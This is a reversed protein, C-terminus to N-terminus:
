ETIRGKGFPIFERVAEVSAGLVMERLEKPLKVALGGLVRRLLEKGAIDGPVVVVYVGAKARVADVPGGGIRVWGEEENVAVGIAVRLPVNRVWNREGRVVFGGRPVSEGSPGGKSLQSPKVWYVDVSGFGERWGRSFAAAFEAAERLCQESQKKGETKVVVFPAGVIDAHLVVDDDETYKKILVENSVADKGAVVLFGDSSVFWRFKEFWEKHRIKHRALEEVAEAPKAHELAEAEGIKAEVDALSKRTNELAAKAGELRQKARKGWEYFQNASDFLKRQLGLGFRLGDVCVNVTLGKADFSEFLVSPELGARKEALVESVVESWERKGRKEVSLRDLLAQLEGVHAYIADGIRRYKEAESAAETLVEEQSEIMRKLREAERKLEDVKFVAAAKEVAVVRAYFEDLAENFSEYSQRKLAEYLRLAFPVVDVFGGGEDLFICPALKGSEVISLLGQLGDYVADVGSDDLAGCPTKKDVGARLLAEEAYLGGIGLLRTLARVVEVDGLGRLEKRFDERDVKFPNRGSPPAFRFVENRLVNRDRMRKYTLAHLTIDKDDILIINGDGFLELVLRLGGASARFSFLVVREFEYQEINTLLSNRLYKRLAMCFAPPTLPKGTVYSTLHLRRGAELVLQFVPKDPKHLKFLLTKGDVQYVNGVRSDVINEKLERVAAAVDFSTFEKKKL